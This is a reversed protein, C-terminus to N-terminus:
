PPNFLLDNAVMESVQTPIAELRQLLDLYPLEQGLLPMEMDKSITLYMAEADLGINRCHKDLRRAKQFRAYTDPFSERLFRRRADAYAQARPSMKRVTM